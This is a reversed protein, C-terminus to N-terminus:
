VFIDHRNCLCSTPNLIVCTVDSLCIATTAFLSLCVNKEDGHIGKNLPDIYIVENGLSIYDGHLIEARKIQASGTLQNGIVVRVRRPEMRALCFFFLCDLELIVPRM